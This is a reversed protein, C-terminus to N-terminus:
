PAQKNLQFRVYHAIFRIVAALLGEDRAVESGRMRHNVAQLSQTHLKLM